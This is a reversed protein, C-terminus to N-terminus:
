RSSSLDRLWDVLETAIGEPPKDTKLKIFHRAQSGFFEYQRLHHEIQEITLEDRRRRIVEPDNSLLVVVDPKPIIVRFLVRVVWLPTEVIPNRRAGILYDYYYREVLVIGNRQLVPRIKIFYGLVYDLTYYLLRVFGMRDPGGKPPGNGQASREPLGLNQRTPLVSPRFGLHHHSVVRHFMRLIQAVNQATTSKGVGDPGVLVVFLGPPRLIRRVRSLTKAIPERLIASLCRRRARISLKLLWRRRFLSDLDKERLKGLVYRAAPKPLTERLRERMTQWDIRGTQLRSALREVYRRRNYAPGLLTHLLEHFLSLTDNPVRFGNPGVVASRVFDDGKSYVVGGSRLATVVDLRFFAWQGDILRYLIFYSATGRRRLNWGGERAVKEVIEAFAEVAEEGILIDVDNGIIQPLREYNRLVCYPVRRRELETLIISLADAAPGPATMVARAEHGM